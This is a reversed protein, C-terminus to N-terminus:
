GVLQPEPIDEWNEEDTEGDENCFLDLAAGMKRSRRKGKPPDSKCNGITKAFDLAFVKSLGRVREASTPEGDYLLHAMEPVTPLAGNFPLLAHLPTANSLVDPEAQVSEQPADEARMFAEGSVPAETFERDDEEQKPLPTFEDPIRSLEKHVTVLREENYVGPYIIVYSHARMLELAYEMWAPFRESILKNKITKAHNGASIRATLFSHLEAWKDGFFLTAANSPAQWLFPAEQSAYQKKYEPHNMDKTTPSKFSTGNLYVSPHELSIGMTYWDEASGDASYRFELLNYMLYQYYIPSLEVQPSLMLVHSRSTDTPYFSEIFRVSAAEPSLHSYPIHHRLVFNQQNSGPPWKFRDLFTEASKEVYPPLEIILRPPQLGSYDASQLNKLLKILSGASKSPAQILVDVSAKHFASLSSSDARTIWRLNETRGRPISIVSKDFERGKTTVASSFFDDEYKLDDTIIVQPHIGKEMYNLAAAVSREARSYTSYPGYDPRADHWMINCSDLDVGNVSQIENVPMQDRGTFVIHVNNRDWADMECALPILISASRLSSVAFLVNRSNHGGLEEVAAHLTPALRFFRVKGEFYHNSQELFNEDTPRPPPGTPEGEDGSDNTIQIAPAGEDVLWYTRILWWIALIGLGWVLWRRKRHRNSRSWFNSFRELPSSSSRPRYDDDRKGLEEDRPLLSTARTM